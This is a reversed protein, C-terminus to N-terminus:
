EGKIKNLVFKTVPGTLGALVPNVFIATVASVAGPVLEVLGDILNAMRTDDAQEGKAVESELAAATQVAQPRIDQPAGQVTQMLPTFLEKLEQGSLGSSVSAQAGRGIAVGTGSVDGVKIKDGGVKDGSVKDGSITQDRGVFDGSGTSVSGGIYAGGGTDVTQQDGTVITGTVDGGIAVARDGSATITQIYQGLLRESLQPDVERSATDVPTSAEPAFSGLSTAGQFLSVAFPGVGRLVTLEPEQTKGLADAADRISLYMSEYLSYASVYGNNNAVYGRGSLGDVLAQTYISLEGKGIWSKQEPRSATIIIRGEGTSLLAASAKNPLNLDGFSEEQEGFGLDPSLEGSHCSNFLMLFRRAPVARLKELLEAEQIGTGAVVRQGSVKSDHSTLYYNGDTGNAGHGCYFLLVTDGEKTRTALEELASLIGERSADADQLVTVQDPPYGCLDVDRLVDMVAHADDVAIPVNASPVYKYRGVGIVLAHGENFAM